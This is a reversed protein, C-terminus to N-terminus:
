GAREDDGGAGGLALVARQYGTVAEASVALDCPATWLLEQARAYRAELESDEVAGLRAARARYADLLGRLEDRRDLLGLADREAAQYQAILGAAQQDVADLETALRTWRGAARLGDLATVQDALRPAPLPPLEAVIKAEARARAAMADQWAGRAAAVAAGAAAIRTDADGRLEALSAEAPEAAQDLGADAIGWAQQRAAALRDALDQVPGALENWVREVTTVLEAVEAFGRRMEGVAAALTVAATGTRTLDRSALASTAPVPVSAGNLLAALDAGPKRGRLLETAQDVVASYASFTEWLRTLTASAAEWRQRTEGELHAGALLRKGFSADLELLNAQITDRQAAAAGVAAGAPAGSV